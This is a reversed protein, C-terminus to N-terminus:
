NGDKSPVLEIKSTDVDISINDFKGRPAYTNMEYQVTSFRTFDWASASSAGVFLVLGAAMLCAATIVLRKTMSQM